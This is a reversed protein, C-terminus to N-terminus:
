RVTCFQLFPKGIALDVRSHIFREHLLCGTVTEFGDSRSWPSLHRHTIDHCAQYCSPWSYRVLVNAVYEIFSSIPRTIERIFKIYLGLQAAYWYRPFHTITESM